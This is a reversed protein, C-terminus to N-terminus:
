RPVRALMPDVHPEPHLTVGIPPRCEDYCRNM